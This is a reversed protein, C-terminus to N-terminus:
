KPLKAWQWAVGKNSLYSEFQEATTFLLKYPESTGFYECQNGDAPYERCIRPRQAYHSCSHDPRLNSCPTVFELMWDGDQDVFVNVNEHMLYWRINDYERKTTPTDLQTAV